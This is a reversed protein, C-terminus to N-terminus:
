LSVYDFHARAARSYTCSACPQEVLVPGLVREGVAAFVPRSVCLEVLRSLFFFFFVRVLQSDRLLRSTSRTDSQRILFHCLVQASPLSQFERLALPNGDLVLVDDDPMLLECAFGASLASVIARKTSLIDVPLSKARLLAGGSAVSSTSACVVSSSASVDADTAQRKASIDEKSLAADAVKRKGMAARVATLPVKLTSSAGRRNSASSMVAQVRMPLFNGSGVSARVRTSSRASQKGSGHHRKQRRGTIRSTTTAVSDAEAIFSDLQECCARFSAECAIAPMRSLHNAAALCKQSFAKKLFKFRAIPDAPLSQWPSSIERVAEDILSVVPNFDPDRDLEMSECGAPPVVANIKGGLRNRATVGPITGQFEVLLEDAVGFASAFRIGDSITRSSM